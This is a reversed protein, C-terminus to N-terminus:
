AKVGTILHEIAQDKDNHLRCGCILVRKFGLLEATLRTASKAEANIHKYTLVGGNSGCLRGLDIINDSEKKDKKEKKAPKKPYSMDRPPLPDQYGGSDLSSIFNEMECDGGKRKNKIQKLIYWTYPAETTAAEAKRADEAKM